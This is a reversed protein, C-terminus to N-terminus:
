LLGHGVAHLALPDPFQNVRVSTTGKPRLLEALQAASGAATVSRVRSRLVWPM